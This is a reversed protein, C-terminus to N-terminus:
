DADVDFGHADLIAAADRAGIPAAVCLLILAQSLDAARAAAFAVKRAPATSRQPGETDLTDRLDALAATLEGHAADLGAVLASASVYMSLYSGPARSPSWVLGARLAFSLGQGAVQPLRVPKAGAGM